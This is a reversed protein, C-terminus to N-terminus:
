KGGLLVVLILLSWGVGVYSCVRIYYRVGQADQAGVKTGVLVTASSQVELAVTLFMVVLNRCVTQAAIIEVSLMTAILSFIEFSWGAWIGFTTASLSMLLQPRWNQFLTKDIISPPLHLNFISFRILVRLVMFRIAFHLSISMAIGKLQLDLIIALYYAIVM